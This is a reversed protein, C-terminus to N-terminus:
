SRDSQNLKFFLTNLWNLSEFLVTALYFATFVVGLFTLSMHLTHDPSILGTLNIAAVSLAIILLSPTNSAPRSFGLQTALLLGFACWGLESHWLEGHETVCVAGALCIAILWHALRLPATWLLQVPKSQCTKLILNKM